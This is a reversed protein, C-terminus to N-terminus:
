ASLGFSAGLDPLCGHSLCRDYATHEAAQREGLPAEADKATRTAQAVLRKLMDAAPDIPLPDGRTPERKVIKRVQLQRM